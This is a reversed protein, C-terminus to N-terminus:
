WDGGVAKKVEGYLLRNGLATFHIDGAIFYKGIAAEAPERFFPAFGDVFRVGRTASWERWHRVQISDRDGAMVNDPWPYVILTMRCQWERCLGVIEELNSGAIELGRRGWQEMLAPDVTWRARARHLSSSHNLPSTLYLTYLLHATAFNDIAFQGLDFPVQVPTGPNAYRVIGDDGLRYVNADDDIDSLDLFVFIEAPRIGLKEAAARIKRHYIIPSYSAVGLNWVAKGQKAADCAILGAFSREYTSGVGETFSDGIVFIAKRSKDVEGPACDGTRFGYRDTRWPYTVSGWVRDSKQNPRLDHHYPVTVYADLNAQYTQVWSRKLSAFVTATLAWDLALTLAIVALTQGAIRLIRRM